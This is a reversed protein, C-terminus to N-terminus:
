TSSQRAREAKLEERIEKLDAVIEEDSLAPLDKSQDQVKNFLAQWRQTRSKSNLRLRLREQEESSLQEVLKFVQDFTAQDEPKRQAM